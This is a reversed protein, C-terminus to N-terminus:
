LSPPTVWWSVLTIATEHPILADNLKTVICANSLRVSPRVSLIAVAIGHTANSATARYFGTRRVSACVFWGVVRLLCIVKKASTSVVAVAMKREFTKGGYDDIGYENEDGPIIVVRQKATVPPPLTPSHPLNLWGLQSKTRVIIYNYESDM